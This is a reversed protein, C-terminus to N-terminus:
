STTIAVVFVAVQQFPLTDQTQKLLVSPTIDRYFDASGTRICIRTIMTLCHFCLANGKSRVGFQKQRRCRRRPARLRNLLLCAAAKKWPRICGRELGRASRDCPSTDNSHLGHGQTSAPRCRPPVAPRQRPTSPRCVCLTLYYRARWRSTQQHVLRPHVESAWGRDNPSHTAM